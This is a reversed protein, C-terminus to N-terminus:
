PLKVDEAEDLKNEVEQQQECLEDYTRFLQVLEQESSQTIFQRDGESHAHTHTHYAHLYYMYM